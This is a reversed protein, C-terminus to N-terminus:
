TTRSMNHKFWEEASLTPMEGRVGKGVKEQANRIAKTIFPHTLCEDEAHGLKELLGRTSEGVFRSLLADTLATHFTTTPRCPLQALANTLAEDRALLPHHEVVLVRLRGEVPKNVASAFGSSRLHSALVLRVSPFAGAESMNAACLAAPDGSSFIRYAISCDRLKKAIVSLMEEFHAVVLVNLNDAAAGAVDRRVGELKRAEDVWVKDDYSAGAAM